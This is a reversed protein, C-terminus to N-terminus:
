EVEALPPVQIQLLDGEPELGQNVPQVEFSTKNVDDRDQFDGISLLCQCVIITETPKDQCMADFVSLLGIKSDLIFFAPSEQDSM